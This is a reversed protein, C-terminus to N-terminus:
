YSFGSILYRHSSFVVKGLLGLFVFSYHQDYIAKRGNGQTDALVEGKEQGLLFM